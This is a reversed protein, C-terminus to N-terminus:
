YFKLQELETSPSEKVYVEGGHETITTIYAYVQLARNIIDTKTDHTQEAALELARASRSTLNVTIRQLGSDGQKAEDHRILRQIARKPRDVDAHRSSLRQAYLRVLDHMQWSDPVSPAAEILHARALGRLVKRTASLPMEALVSAAETSVDDNPSLSILRFARASIEDLRAYSLEFAAEVSRPSENHGSDDYRLASLRDQKAALEDALQHASLMPDSNLIAAAIQLALPLGGCITALRRAANPNNSIRDDDPRAVRLATDLLATGSKQNLVTVDVLRASLGALTHRSTVMMRHPGLGPLLPQVQTESSANDAIVLMPENIHALRSRYLAAREETTPPLQEAQVQLARLLMGLAEAPPVPIKDYGHLDIFLVGGSYWGSERAIHGAQVALTTKGVGALGAVASVLVTSAAGSPDLLGTLIKLEDDRGTFAAILPPLQAPRVETLPSSAGITLHVDSISQAQLVPGQQNGGSIINAIDNPPPNGASV